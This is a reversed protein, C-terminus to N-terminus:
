GNLVEDMLETRLRMAMCWVPKWEDWPTKPREEVCIKEVENLLGSLNAMRMGNLESDIREFEELLM